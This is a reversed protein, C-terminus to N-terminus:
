RGGAGYAGGIFDYTELTKGAVREWSFTAARELGRRRLDRTLNQDTLILRLCEALENPDHPDFSLASDGSAEVVGPVRAAVVSTGCAMAELVPLGFGEVLSPFVFAEALTLLVPLDSERISGVPRVRQALGDNDAGNRLARPFRPDVEGAIVLSPVLSPELLRLADVVVQVNKHPRLAGLTLIFRDPLSYRQRVADLRAPDHEPRFFSGVGNGIVRIRAPPVRYFKGVDEGTAQSVALVASARRVAARTYAQYFLPLWGAPRFEPFREFILDHMTMVLPIPTLLPLLVYPSHFIAAKERRLLLPWVLQERPSYLPLRVPRLEVNERSALNALDFRNNPYSTDHFVIYRRATDLRTLAELLGYAHRGIGHYRDNMFRGDFAVIPLGASTAPTPLQAGRRSANDVTSHAV